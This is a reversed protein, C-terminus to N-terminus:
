SWPGARVEPLLYAHNDTNLNENSSNLTAKIRTSLYESDIQLGSTNKKLHNFRDSKQNLEVIQVRDFDWDATNSNEHIKTVNLKYDGSQEEAPIESSNQIGFGYTLKFHEQNSLISQIDEVNATSYYVIKLNGDQDQGVQIQEVGIVHLKSKISEITKQADNENIESGSFQVIIQQNPIVSHELYRLLFATLIILIGFHLKSKM